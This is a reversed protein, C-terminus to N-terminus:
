NGEPSECKLVMPGLQLYKIIGLKKFGAKEIGRQSAINNLSTSIYIVSERNKNFIEKSIVALMYPYISNGRYEKFTHCHFIYYRNKSTQFLKHSNYLYPKFKNLNTVLYYGAIDANHIALYVTVGHKLFYSFKIFEQKIKKDLNAYKRLEMVDKIKVYHIKIRPTIPTIQAPDEIIYIINHVNCYTRQKIISLVNTLSSTNIFNM